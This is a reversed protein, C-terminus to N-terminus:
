VGDQTTQRPLRGRAWLREAMRCCQLRCQGVTRDM